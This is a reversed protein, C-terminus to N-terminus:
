PYMSSFYFGSPFPFLFLFLFLQRPPSLIMDFYRGGKNLTPHQAYSLGKVHSTPADSSALRTVHGLIGCDSSPHFIRISSRHLIFVHHSFSLWGSLISLGAHGLKRWGLRSDNERDGAWARCTIAEEQGFRWNRAWRVRGCLEEVKYM